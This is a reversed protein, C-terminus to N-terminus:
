RKAASASAALCTSSAKARSYRWPSCWRGSGRWREVRKWRSISSWASARRRHAFHAASWTSAQGSEPTVPLGSAVRLMRREWRCAASCSSPQRVGVSCVVMLTMGSGQGLDRHTEVDRPTELSVSNWAPPKLHGRQRGLESDTLDTGETGCGRGLAGHLWRRDQTGDPFLYPRQKECLSQQVTLES